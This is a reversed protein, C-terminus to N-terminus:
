NYKLFHKLALLKYLFDLDGQEANPSSSQAQTGGCDTNMSTHGTIIQTLALISVVLILYNLMQLVLLRAKALILLDSFLSIEGNRKNYLAIPNNSDEDVRSDENRLVQWSSTRDSNNFEYVSGSNTLTTSGKVTDDQPAGVVIRTDSYAIPTWISDLESVNTSKLQQGFVMKKLSQLSSEQTQMWYNMYMHRVVKHLEIQLHQVTQTLRQQLVQPLRQSNSNQEIDFGVGLLTSAPDSAVLPNRTGEATGGELVHRDFVVQEGFNENEFANLILKKHLHLTAIISDRPSLQGTGPNITLKNKNITKTTDIVVQGASNVSASVGPISANNIDSALGTPNTGTESLTVRYDDIHSIDGATQTHIANTTVRAYNKGSDPSIFVSGTNPNTEDERLDVAVMTGHTDIAVSKGFQEGQGPAQGAVNQDLKQKEAFTGTHVIINPRTPQLSLHLLIESVHTFDKLVAKM